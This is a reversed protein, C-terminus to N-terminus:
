GINIDTICLVQIGTAKIKTKRDRNETVAFACFLSIVEGFPFIETVSLVSIFYAKVTRNFLLGANV